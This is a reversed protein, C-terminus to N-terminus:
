ELITRSISEFYEQTAVTATHRLEIENIQEETLAIRLTRYSPSDGCHIMPADDRIIVTLIGIPHKPPKM